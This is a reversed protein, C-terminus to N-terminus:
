PRTRGTRRAALAAAGAALGVAVVLVVPVTSWAVDDDAVVTRLIGLGQVVVSAVLGGVAANVIAELGGVRRGVAWGGLGMALLVVAVLPYAVAPLGDDDGIEDALQAALAAPVAVALAVGAGLGVLPARLQAM